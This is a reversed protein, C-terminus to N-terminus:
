SNRKPILIKPDDSKGITRANGIVACGHQRSGGGARRRNTTIRRHHHGETGTPEDGEV